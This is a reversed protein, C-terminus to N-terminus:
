QARLMKPLHVGIVGIQCCALVIVPIPSDIVLGPLYRDGPAGFCGGDKTKNRGYEVFRKM